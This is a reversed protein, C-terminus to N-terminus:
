TNASPSSSSSSPSASSGGAGTTLIRPFFTLVFGCWVGCWVAGARAHRFSPTQSHTAKGQTRRVTTSHLFCKLPQESLGSSVCACTARQFLTPIRNIQPQPQPFCTCGRAHPTTCNFKICLYGLARSPALSSSALLFCSPLEQAHHHGTTSTCALIPRTYPLPGSPRGRERNYKPQPNNKAAATTGGQVNRSIALYATLLGRWYRVFFDDCCAKTLVMTKCYGGATRWMVGYGWVGGWRLAGRRAAGRRM